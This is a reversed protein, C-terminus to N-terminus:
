ASACDAGVMVLKDGLKPGTLGTPLGMVMLPEPKPAEGPVTVKPPTAAAGLEHLSVEM